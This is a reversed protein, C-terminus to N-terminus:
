AWIALSKPMARMGSNRVNDGAGSTSAEVQAISRSDSSAPCAGLAALSTTAVPTEEGVLAREADVRVGHEQVRGALVLQGLGDRAPLLRGIRLM